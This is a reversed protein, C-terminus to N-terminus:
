GTHGSVILCSWAFRSKGQILVRLRESDIRTAIGDADEMILCAKVKNRMLRATDSSTCSTRRTQYDVCRDAKGM